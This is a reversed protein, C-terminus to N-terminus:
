IGAIFRGGDGKARALWGRSETREGRQKEKKRGEVIAGLVREREEKCGVRRERHRM